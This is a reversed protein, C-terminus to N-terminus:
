LRPGSFGRALWERVRSLLAPENQKEEQIRSHVNAWLAATVDVERHYQNYIERELKIEAGLKACASCSALHASVQSAIRQELEGDFYDEILPQCRECKM